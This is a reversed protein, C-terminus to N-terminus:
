LAGPHGGKEDELRSVPRLDSRRKGRNRINYLFHRGDPLFAPWRQLEGSRVETVPTPTGGTVSVCCLRSTDRRSSFPGAPEGPAGRAEEVDALSVPLASGSAKSRDEVQGARLFRAVSRRPVLCFPFSAGGSGGIPFSVLPELPRVWLLIRDDRDRASFAIRTGDPSVAPTGSNADLFHFETNPPPLLTSRVVQPPAVKPLATRGLLAGIALAGIAIGAPLVWSARRRVAPIVASIGEKERGIERLQLGVDQATQWRDEPDKALCTERAPRARPAHSARGRLDPAARRAPDCGILSAQTPGSFAKRGTAMEYLVAGFAFVDTRADAEKGELQEPAM